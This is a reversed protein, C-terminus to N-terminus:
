SGELGIQVIGGDKAGSGIARVEALQRIVPSVLSNATRHCVRRVM